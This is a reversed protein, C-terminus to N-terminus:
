ISLFLRQRHLFARLRRTFNKRKSLNRYKEGIM